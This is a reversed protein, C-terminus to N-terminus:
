VGRELKSPDRRSLRTSRAQGEGAGKVDRRLKHTALGVYTLALIAILEPIFSLGIRLGIAGTTPNLSKSPALISIVSYVMRIGAFPLSFLVAYLLKTGGVHGPADVTQQSPLMSLLSWVCLIVWSLLLIIIGVKLLTLTSPKVNVGSFASAGSAVIGLGTIVILHFIAVLPWERSGRLNSNRYYRAEHLVGSMGILLPSLGISSITAAASSPTGSKDASLAMAGGVIRLSCFALVYLWGLLGPRGHRILIYIVPLSLAGYIALQATNLGSM